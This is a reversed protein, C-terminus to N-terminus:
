TPPPMERPQDHANQKSARWEWRMQFEGSWLGLRKERARAKREVYIESSRRFAVAWGNEVMWGARREDDLSNAMSRSLATM